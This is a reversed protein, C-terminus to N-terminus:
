VHPEAGQDAAAVVSGHGAKRDVVALDRRPRHEAGKAALTEVALIEDALRDAGARDGDHGARLRADVAGGM